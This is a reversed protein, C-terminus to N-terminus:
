TKPSMSFQIFFKPIEFNCFFTEIINNKIEFNVESEYGVDGLTCLDIQVYGISTHVILGYMVAVLVKWM